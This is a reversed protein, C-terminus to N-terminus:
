ESLIPPISTWRELGNRFTHVPLVFCPVPGHERFELYQIKRYEATPSHVQMDNAM